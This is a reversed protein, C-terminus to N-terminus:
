RPWSRVRDPVDRRRGPGAGDRSRSQADAPGFRGSDSAIGTGQVARLGPTRPRETAPDLSAAGGHTPRARLWKGYLDTTLSLTAHGLQQQVYKPNEGNQLLLSAYTHRLDHPSWHGLGARRCFRDMARQVNQKTFPTGAETLFLWPATWGKALCRASRETLHRRLVEALRPSLDVQRISEKSKPTGLVRGSFAREVRIERRVFDIDGPQLAFAEGIRLGTRSLLFYFAFYRRDHPRAEPRAMVDLFAALQAQDMARIRAGRESAKVLVKFEKAMRAAPNATILEDSVAQNLMNHLVAYAIRVTGKDLPNLAAPGRGGRRTRGHQSLKALWRTIRSRRMDRVRTTGFTPLIHLRLQSRYLEETRPKCRTRHLDFWEEAYAGVTIAPDVTPELRTARKELLTKEAKLEEAQEITAVTKWRKARTPDIWGVIFGRAQAGRYKSAPVYFAM